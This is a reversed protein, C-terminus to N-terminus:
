RVRRVTVGPPLAEPSPEDAGSEKMNAMVEILHWKIAASESTDTYPDPVMPAWVTQIDVDSPRSGQQGVALNGALAKRADQYARFKPDTGFVAAAGRKLADVRQAPGIRAIIGDALTKMEDFSGKVMKRAEAKNRMVATIPNTKGFLNGPLPVEEAGSATFRLARPTGEPTYFIQPQPAQPDQRPQPESVLQYDQPLAGAIKTWTGNEFLEVTQKDASIRVLPKGQTQLSETIKIVDAPDGGERLYAAILQQAPAGSELGQALAMSAIRKQGDERQDPMGAFTEPGRVPEAAQAGPLEVPAPAAAPLGDPSEVTGPMAVTSPSAPIVGLTAGPRLLSTTGYKQMEAKLVPDPQDGPMLTQLVKLHKTLADAEAKQAAETRRLGMLEDADADIRRERQRALEDQEKQRQDMARRLMAQELRDAAAVGPNIYQPM